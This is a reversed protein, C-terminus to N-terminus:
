SFETFICERQRDLFYSYFSPLFLSQRRVTLPRLFDLSSVSVNDALFILISLRFFYHNVDYRESSHYLHIPYLHGTVM